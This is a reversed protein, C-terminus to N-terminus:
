AHALRHLERIALTLVALDSADSGTMEALLRDHRALADAHSKLWADMAGKGRPDDDTQGAVVQRTLRAHLSDIEELCARAANENWPSSNRMQKYAGRRLRDLTLREGLAFYLRGVRDVRDDAARAVHVIDCAAGIASLGAARQALDAPVGKQQLRQHRRRLNARGRGSVFEDLQASLVAVDARYRAICAFNDLPRGGHRLFWRTARELLVSADRLLEFQQEIPMAQDLAEIQQWLTPLAFVDRAALYARAIAVTDNGTDAAIHSLFSPGARNILDNAIRTAVIERRLRHDLIADRFTERMPAPFYHVLDEEWSKDDPLDSRLLADYVATKSHAMLVALEPSTLGTAAREKRLESNSPLSELERDLGGDRELERMLQVHEEIRGAADHAIFSLARAQQNSDDLVLQAVEDTMARLLRNRAEPQLQGTRVAGDLAIKINVEHDSCNVGGVNDIFDTFIRGGAGAFAVRGAQTVALNAGEGVVKCRLMRADVRLEDNARDGAALHTEHAAKVFTGIGGFWLLDVDARLLAQILKAPTIKANPLGFRERVAASPQIAKETRLFVDGGNALLADRDYADWGGRAEFLRQREALSAAPDPDPDVFVHRHNFAGILKVHPSLLMGNGFVDGAMDGVGVVTIPERALDRNLARFHVEVSEWASRATIGMGKHDYGASGGSAFADGLWFGYDQAVANATDAFTATGKDAAVVLYPDDADHRVVDTPPVIAGDRINDTLDLLGRIMTQYCAIGAEADSAFRQPRKVVFGGKAGAPVIVANKVMQAKVLGLIETRFDEQRDSWRIGGRAVAGARLHVAEVEPSYVFIEFEPRPPPLLELHRAHLKFSLYGKGAGDADCQFYNTRLTTEILKVFRRLIRDEDLKEVAELRAMVETKAIEIRDARDDGDAAPDFRAQFLALLARTTDANRALTLAMYRQSFASGTQRLYRAYARFMTAERWSLDAAIVLHNFSDDEVAGNWVRRFTEEIRKRLAHDADTIPRGDTRVQFDRVWIATDTGDPTVKYPVEHMVLLGLSELIPLYTSLATPRAGPEVTRLHFTRPAGKEDLDNGDASYVRVQMADAALAADCARVDRQLTVTSRTEERYAVPFAERYRRWRATGDAEGFAKVLAWRLTDRWPRAASALTAELASEDVSPADPGPTRIIFQLQALPRDSIQTTYTEVEGGFARELLHQIRRRLRTTHLDRPVYVMCSVFRGAADRRVFLAVRPRLQLKLIRLAFDYLQERHIQFLEDRPYLELIARLNKHNHSQRLFGAREMVYSVKQDLLPIRSAAIAYARSTFLGFFRLEGSVADNADYRKISIIDMHVARHVSSRHNSKSVALLQPQRLFTSATSSLAIETPYRPNRMLGLRSGPVAVLRDTAGDDTPTLRFESVGLYTFHNNDIWNLFGRAEQLEAAARNPPRMALDEIVAGMRDRMAQWDIVTSRVDDLVEALAARISACAAEDPQRDIEIHMFSELVVGEGISGLNLVADLAGDDRRRVMCQPHVMRHVSLGRQELVGIVSGVLFPMDDTIIQIVTHPTSWGGPAVDPDFVHLRPEGLRRSRAHALLLLIVDAVHAPDAHEVDERMTGDVYREIFSTDISPGGEADIRARLHELIRVSLQQRNSEPM